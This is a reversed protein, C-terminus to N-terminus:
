AAFDPRLALAKEYARMAAELKDQARLAEGLNNHYDAVQGDIDIAREILAVAEKPQGSQLAMVGLLHLADAHDPQQALIERYLAEAEELRGAQHHALAQDLETMLTYCSTALIFYRTALSDAGECSHVATRASGM